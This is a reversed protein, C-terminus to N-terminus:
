DASSLRINVAEHLYSVEPKTVGAVTLAKKLETSQIFQQARELTDYDCMVTVDNANQFNRFIRYSQEGSSRRMMLSDDFAARWRNYDQVVHRILVHVM